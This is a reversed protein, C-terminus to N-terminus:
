SAATDASEDGSSLSAILKWSPVDDLSM